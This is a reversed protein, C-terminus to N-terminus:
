LKVLIVILLSKSQNNNMIFSESIAPKDTCSCDILVYYAKEHRDYQVQIVMMISNNNRLILITRCYSENRKGISENGLKISQKLATLIQKYQNKNIKVIIDERHCNFRLCILNRKIISITVNSSDLGHEELEQSQIQISRGMIPRSAYVQGAFFMM